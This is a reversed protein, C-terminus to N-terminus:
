HLEVPKRQLPSVKWVQLKQTSTYPISCALPFTALQRIFKM